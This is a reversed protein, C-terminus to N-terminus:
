FLSSAAVSTHRLYDSRMPEEPATTGYHACTGFADCMDQISKRMEPWFLVELAMRINSESGFHNVYIKKVMEKHLSQPVMVQMGKYIIGNRVSLEDKYNWYSCLSESIVAKDKSWGHVIVKCLTTLTVDRNM